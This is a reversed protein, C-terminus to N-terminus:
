YTWLKAQKLPYSKEITYTHIKAMLEKNQYSQYMTYSLTIAAIGVSVALAAPGGYAGQILVTVALYGLPILAQKGTLYLADKAFHGNRRLQIYNYTSMTIIVISGMIGVNCAQTINETITVGFKSLLGTMSRIVTDGIIRTGIHNIMGFAAGELGIKGSNLIAIKFSDPTLGNQAINVIFGISAGTVFGIIAAIGAGKLENYVVRKINTTKLMAEKNTMSADSENRFNGQHGKKLHEERSKYFKINDPNAQEEPHHAVNKQHHGEAGRVTNNKSTLIEEKQSKNWNASGNGGMEIDAKEYRWALKVGGGRSSRYSSNNAVRERILNNYRNSLKGLNNVFENCQGNFKNTTYITGFTNRAQTPVTLMNTHYTYRQKNITYDIVENM